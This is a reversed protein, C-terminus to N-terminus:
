GGMVLIPRTQSGSPAELRVFYLGAPVPLDDVNRGDWELTRAGSHVTGKFITRMRRGLADFISVEIAEATKSELTISVPGTTPNPFTASLGVEPTDPFGSETSLTTLNDDAILTVVDQYTRREAGVFSGDEFIPFAYVPTLVAEWVGWQVQQIDVELHGYHKGGDLLVGSQWQEPVDTHVLFRQHPNSLGPVPGRLDDGGTGVDYFQITHPRSSGDPRIEFGDVTSREWMEDHGAFVADVGYEM